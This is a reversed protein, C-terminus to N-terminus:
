SPDGTPQPLPTRARILAALAAGLAAVLGCLYAFSQLALGLADRVATVDVDAVAPGTAVGTPLELLHPGDARQMHFDFSM